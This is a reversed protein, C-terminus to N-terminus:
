LYIFSFFLCLKSYGVFNEKNFSINPFLEILAQSLRNNHYELV